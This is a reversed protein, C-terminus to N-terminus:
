RMSEAWQRMFDPDRIADFGVVAIFGVILILYLGSIITGIIGCIKGAKANKLSGETYMNPALNFKKIDSNALIWAIIGLILGFVGYCCCAPISLIGLILSITANPLSQPGMGGFHPQGTGFNAPPTYVSQPVVPQEQQNGEPIQQEESM